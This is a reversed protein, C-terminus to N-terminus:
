LIWIKGHFVMRQAGRKDGLDDVINGSMLKSAPVKNIKVLLSIPLSLSPSM